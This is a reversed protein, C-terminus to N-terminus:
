RPSSLRWRWWILFIQPGEVLYRRWLRAPESALRFLWELGARQMWKPARAKAGTLFELSAGICLGVGRAADRGAILACVLESQPSGIALLFLGAPCDEVFEAIAQQAAPDHLVGHPPAHWYWTWGPYRARLDRMLGEDGGIVAASRLRGPSAMLKATLDSGTVLDLKLGSLGALSRLVRSDCLRLAADEYSAWLRRNAPQRHLRVLHDVNPTVVYAFREGGALERVAALAADEDLRDFRLGLFSLAGNQGAPAIM